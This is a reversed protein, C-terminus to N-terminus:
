KQIILKQDDLKQNESTLRVVYVGTELQSIDHASAGNNQVINNAYVLQGILNFIKLEIPENINQLFEITIINAAPNPYLIFNEEDGGFHQIITSTTDCAQINKYLNYFPQNPDNTGTVKNTLLAVLSYRQQSLDTGYQFLGAYCAHAFNNQCLIDFAQQMFTTDYDLSDIFDYWDQLDVQYTYASDLFQRIWANEAILSDKEKAQSWEL